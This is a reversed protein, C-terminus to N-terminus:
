FFQKQKYNLSKGNMWACKIEKFSVYCCKSIELDVEFCMKVKKISM